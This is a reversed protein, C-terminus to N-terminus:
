DDDDDEGADVEIPLWGYDKELLREWVSGEVRTFDNANYLHLYTLFDVYSWINHDKKIHVGYDINKLLCGDKSLQCIFCLNSRDNEYTYTQDRLAGFTDVILGFTVNGMIMMDYIFRGIYMEVDNKFSIIPLVDGIGGGARTGYSILVLFCQLSSHCFPENIYNESEYEMVEGLDFVDRMYFIAIYNYVYLILYTFILCSILSSFKEIFSKFINILSPFIGYLFLTEISLVLPHGFILFLVDLIFSFVFISIDINFLVSDVIALKIMRFFGIDKNILSITESLNGNERFYKVMTPNIINQNQQGLQRFIFNKDEKIMVNRQFTIIFNCYFWVFFSFFILVLKVAIIIIIDVFRKYRISDDVLEYEDYDLSYDRYYHYMLLCNEALILLYNIIQLYYFSINSLGKFFLSNNIYKMNYMMEFIFYDSYAILDKYKSTASTRDM